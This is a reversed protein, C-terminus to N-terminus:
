GFEMAQLRTEASIKGVSGVAGSCSNLYVFHLPMPNMVFRRSVYVGNRSNVCVKGAGNYKM